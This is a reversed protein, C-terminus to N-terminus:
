FPGCGRYGKWFARHPFAWLGRSKSYIVYLGPDWPHPAGTSSGHDSSRAPHHTVFRFFARGAISFQLFYERQPFVAEPNRRRLTQLTNVFGLTEPPGDSLGAPEANSLLHYVTRVTATHDAEPLDTGAFGPVALPESADTAVSQAAAQGAAGVAQAAARAAENSDQALAASALTAGALIAGALAAGPVIAWSGRNAMSGIEYGNTM